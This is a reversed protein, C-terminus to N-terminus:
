RTGVWIGGWKYWYKLASVVTIWRLRVNNHTGRTWQHRIVVSPVYAVDAHQLVRRGIDADELYMFFWEDFGDIKRLVDTRFFMFCGSPYYVPSVVQEYDRELMLFRDMRQAFLRKLPVPAFGRLFMDFLSPNLKCLHHIEGDFGLEKPVLLGVHPNGEMFDVAKSLTDPEVLVDPNSVLHYDADSSNRISINHGAGYGINGPSAILKIRLNSVLQQRDLWAAIQALSDDQPNNNVIDLGIDCDRQQKLEASAAAFHAIADRLLGMDSKYIVISINIKM